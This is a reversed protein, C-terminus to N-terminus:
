MDDEASAQEVSAGDLDQIVVNKKQMSKFGERFFTDRMGLLSFPSIPATYPIGMNGLACVNILVLTALITVGYLGMTGGLVILSFRLLVGQQYLTPVVFSSIATLAVVMVMPSGILGATVAADGIVLAGVISVAHGVPRPLRLGAERMIEFIVHIILAEYYIPFPTMEESVVINYLLAPPFLEPHYTAIAVYMGPLFISVMFSLYRLVRIFTAFWSKNAYDDLSQFNEIFLYPVILAHPLGDIVVAVRGESIKGSLVDPRETSGCESFFAFPRGNMFAKLNGSTLVMELEVGRLRRKVGELIESSVKDTLYMLCVDTKSTSGVTMIEFKLNPSKVRKRVMAMNTRLPETFGERSGMENVENNPEAISRQPFSQIGLMIAQGVGDVIIGVFGSMVMTCFQNINKTYLQEPAMYTENQIFNVIETASHEEKYENNLLPAVLMQGIVQTNVLGAVVIISVDVGNVKIQRVMLDNTDNMKEKIQGVNQALSDSLREM